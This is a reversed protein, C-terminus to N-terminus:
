TLTDASDVGLSPPLQVSIEAFAPSSMSEARVGTAPKFASVANSATALRSSMLESQYPRKCAKIAAIAQSLDFEPANREDRKAATGTIKAAIEVGELSMRVIQEAADGSNNM